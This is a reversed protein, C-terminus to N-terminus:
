YNDFPFDSLGGTHGTGLMLTWPYINLKLIFIQIINMLLLKITYNHM